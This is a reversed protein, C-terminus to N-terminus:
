AGSHAFCLLAHSCNSPRKLAASRAALLGGFEDGSGGGVGDLEGGGEFSGWRHTGIGGRQTDAFSRRFVAAANPQIRLRRVPHQRKRRLDGLM